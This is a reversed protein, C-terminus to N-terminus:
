FVRRDLIGLQWLYIKFIQEKDRAYEKSTKSSYTVSHEGVTESKYQNETAKEQYLIQVLACTCKKIEDTDKHWESRGFTRQYIIQSALESYFDFSAVDIAGETGKLYDNVYYSYDVYAKTM